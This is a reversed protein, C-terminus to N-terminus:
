ILNDRIFVDVEDLTYIDVVAAKVVKIFCLDEIVIDQNDKLRITRKKYNSLKDNLKGNTINLLNSTYITFSNEENYNLKVLNDIVISGTGYVQFTKPKIEKKPSIKKLTKIDIYNIINGKNILGPTDIINMNDIKLEIKNLTTSPYLSTTIEIDEKSYNKILKNILTSKGSNTNGVFYINNSQNHKKIKNYLEDLHYNKISSIIEVDLLNPYNNKIKAIIKEDKVSKPLLDKKTLVLIVKKFRSIQELNLNLLSCVYVVLDEQQIKELIKQYDENNKTTIKYENYHKIKFCRECIDKTIDDVYGDKNKDETQLTIGCGICKKNM